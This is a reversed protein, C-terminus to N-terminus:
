GLPHASLDIPAGEEEPFDVDPIAELAEALRMEAKTMTMGGVATSRYYDIARCIVASIAQAQIKTM